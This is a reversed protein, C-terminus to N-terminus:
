RQDSTPICATRPQTFLSKENAEFIEIPVFLRKSTVNGLPGQVHFNVVLQKSPDALAYVRDLKVTLGGPLMSRATEEMEKEVEAQDQRLARQRWQLAPDGTYGIQVVGDVDGNDTM